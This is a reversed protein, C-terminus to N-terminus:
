RLFPVNWVLRFRLFPALAQALGLALQFPAGLNGSSRYRRLKASSIPHFDFGAKTILQHELGHSFGIYHVRWGNRKLTRIVSLNPLVHGATGGGTIFVGFTNEAAGLM